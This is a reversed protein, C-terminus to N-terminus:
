DVKKIRFQRRFGNFDNLRNLNLCLNSDSIRFGHGFVIKYEFKILLQQIQDFFDFIVVLISLKQYLEVIKSLIISM